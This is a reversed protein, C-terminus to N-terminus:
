LLDVAVEHHSVQEDWRSLARRATEEQRMTLEFPLPVQDGPELHNRVLECLPERQQRSVAPGFALISAHDVPDV